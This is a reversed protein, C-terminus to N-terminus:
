AILNRSGRAYPAIVDLWGAAFTLWDPYGLLEFDPALDRLIQRAAVIDAPTLRNEIWQGDRAYLAAFPGHTSRTYLKGDFTIPPVHGQRKLPGAFTYSHDIGELEDTAHLLINGPNRDGNVGMLDVLGLLWANDSDFAIALRDRLADTDASPVDLKAVSPADVYEMWVSKPTNRYVKPVRAGFARALLSYGQEAAAHQVVREESASMSTKRVLRSGNPARVVVVLASSGGPLPKFQADPGLSEVAAALDEIGDLSRHYRAAAPTSAAPRAQGRHRLLDQIEQVFMRAVAEDIGDDRLMAVVDDPTQGHVTLAEIIDQSLRDTGLDPDDLNPAPPQTPNPEDPLKPGSSRGPDDDARPINGAGIQERYPLRKLKPNEDLHQRMEGQWARVKRGAATKAEPALAAVEREKWGRITREIERQRVKAANLEPDSLDGKPLQTAGPLFARITHTCNHVVLGSAVYAGTSTQLDYAHGEYWDRQVDIVQDPTVECALRALIQGLGDADAPLGHQPAQFGAADDDSLPGGVPGAVAHGCALRPGRGPFAQREVSPGVLGREGLEQDVLSEAVNLLASEAWVVDVEGKYSRGDGHFDDASAPVSTRHGHAALADFVQEFSAPVDHLDVVPVALDVGERTAARLVHMGEGIREAALWGATTLVPHNPSVTLRNGSATTLHVSPGEYWARVANEAQGLVRCDQDGLIANPHLLGAAMAEALTGAITVNIMRGTTVSKRKVVGVEAGGLSLVKGEWPRCLACEGPSDSVTVLDVGLSELRDTQGQVAARQTVTRLAMEVYSSLRWTRGRADTFSTVGKAVLRAFADQSAQRRTLGGAIGVGASQLVVARYVDMVHRLVNRSREGIDTMVAAALSEMAAVRTVTTTAARAASQTIQELELATVATGYGTRYAEALHQRVEPAANQELEGLTLQAARRLASVAALRDEAWTPADMGESLYRAILALLKLETERYLAVTAISIAHVDDPNVAM